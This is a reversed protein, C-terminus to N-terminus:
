SNNVHVNETRSQVRAHRVIKINILRLRSLSVFASFPFSSSSSSFFISCVWQIHIRTTPKQQLGIEQQILGLRTDPNEKERDSEARECHLEIWSSSNLRGLGGKM